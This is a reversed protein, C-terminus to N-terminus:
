KQLHETVFSYQEKCLGLTPSRVRKPGLGTENSTTTLPVRTIKNIATTASSSTTFVQPQANSLLHGIIVHVDRSSTSGEITLDVFVFYYLSEAHEIKGGM